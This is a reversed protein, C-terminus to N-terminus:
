TYIALCKNSHAYYRLEIKIPRLPVSQTNSYTGSVASFMKIAGNSCPRTDPNQKLINKPSFKVAKYYPVVSNKLTHICDAFM